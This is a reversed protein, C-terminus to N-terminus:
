LTGLLETEEQRSQVDGRGNGRAGKGTWRGATGYRQVLTYEVVGRTTVGQTQFAARSMGQDTKKGGETDGEAMEWEKAAQRKGNGDM